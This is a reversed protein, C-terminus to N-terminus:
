AAMQLPELRWGLAVGRARGCLGQLLDASELGQPDVVPRQIGDGQALLLSIRSVDHHAPWRHGRADFLSALNHLNDAKQVSRQHLERVDRKQLCRAAALFQESMSRLAGVLTAGSAVAGCQSLM